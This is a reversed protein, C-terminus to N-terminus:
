YAGNSRPEISGDPYVIQEEDNVHIRSNIRALRKARNRRLVTKKLEIPELGLEEREIAPDGGGSIRMYALIERKEQEVTELDINFYQALFQEIPTCIPAYRDITRDIKCIRMGNNEVWYMFNSIIKSENKASHMRDVESTIPGPYTYGNSLNIDEYKM